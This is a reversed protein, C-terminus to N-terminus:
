GRDNTLESEERVVGHSLTPVPTVVTSVAKHGQPSRCTGSSFVILEGKCPLFVLLTM